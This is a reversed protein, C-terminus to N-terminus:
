LIPGLHHLIRVFKQRQAVLDLGRNAILGIVGAGESVAVHPVARFHLRLSWFGAFCRFGAKLRETLQLFRVGHGLFVEVFLLLLGGNKEVVRQRLAGHDLLIIM